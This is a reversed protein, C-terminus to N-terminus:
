GIQICVIDGDYITTTYAGGSAFRMSVTEAVTLVVVAQLSIDFQRAIGDSIPNM